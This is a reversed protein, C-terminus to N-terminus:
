NTACTSGPRRRLASRGSRRRGRSTTGTSITRIISTTGATGTTDAARSAWVAAWAAAAAVASAGGSGIGAVPARGGDAACVVPWCLRWCRACPSCRRCYWTTWPRRNWRAQLVVTVCRPTIIINGTRDHDGTAAVPAPPFQCKRRNTKNVFRARGHFRGFVYVAYSIQEVIVIFTRLPHNPTVVRTNRIRAGTSLSSEHITSTQSIRSFFLPGAPRQSKNLKSYFTRGYRKNARANKGSVYIRISWNTEGGRPRICVYM